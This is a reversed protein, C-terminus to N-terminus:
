THSRCRLLVSRPMAKGQGTPFEPTDKNRDEWAQEMIYYVAALLPPDKSDWAIPLLIHLAGRDVKCFYWTRGTTIVGCRAACSCFLM